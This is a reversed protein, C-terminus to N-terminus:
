VLAGFPLKDYDRAFWQRILGPITWYGILAVLLFVFYRYRWCFRRYSSIRHCEKCRYSRDHIESYCAPCNMAKTLSDANTATSPTGTEGACRRRAPGQGHDRLLVGN